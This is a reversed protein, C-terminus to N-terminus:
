GPPFAGASDPIASGGCVARIGAPLTPLARASMAPQSSFRELSSEGSAITQVQSQVPVLVPSGSARKTWRNIGRPNTNWGKRRAVQEHGQLPHPAGPYLGAKWEWAYRCALELRSWVGVRDFVDRLHNKVTMETIGMQAACMQNNWGSAVLATLAFQRPTLIERLGRVSM